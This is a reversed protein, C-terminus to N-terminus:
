DFTPATISRRRLRVPGKEAKSMLIAAPEFEPHFERLKELTVRLLDQDDCDAACLAIYWLARWPHKRLGLEFATLLQHIAEASRRNGFLGLGSWLKLEGTDHYQGAYPRLGATLLLPSARTIEEEAKLIENLDDSLYSREYEPLTGEISDLWLDAGEQGFSERQRGLWKRTRKEQGMLKEYIGNMKAAHNHAGFMQEAFLKANRGLREREEPHHYLHEIAGVYEQESRVVFGNFENCVLTKLGGHPFVVPPIGAYMAEQLNLESAAYTDECLPYGYVDLIELVSDIEEVYGRFDFREATGHEKTENELVTHMDGGCVIVKCAPLKIAEHMALFNQHMKVLNVTGIYGINFGAHKKPTVTKLRSFDAGGTVWNTKRLREDTSLAQISPAFYTYSSGGVVFDFYHVLQRTLLQPAKDGAVHFWGMLRCPPLESRLFQDMEPHQWWNVQVIDAEAMAARLEDWNRVIPVQMGEEIAFRMANPDTHKLDLVALQHEYGGLRASHKATAIMTRAAGGVTLSHIINLVRTM